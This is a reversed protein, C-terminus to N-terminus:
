PRDPVHVPPRGEYLRGKTIGKDRVQAYDASFVCNIFLVPKGIRKWILPTHVLGKPVFVITTKNIIHKEQEEGLYLEIDADFDKMNIGDGVFCLLQDHDHKHPTEMEFPESIHTYRLSFNLGETALTYLLMNSHPPYISKGLPETQIYKGYKTEVM